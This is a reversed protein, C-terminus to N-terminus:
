AVRLVLNFHDKWTPLRSLTSYAQTRSQDEVGDLLQEVAKKWLYRDNVDVYVPIDGLIERYVSLDGCIVPTGLLTAEAPPMGFGEAFSPFVLATAGKLLTFLDPDSLTNLEIVAPNAQDLREFVQRNNWGRAGAIVLQPIQSAPREKALADWVDLLLAHNKRPEITGVTVFVPRAPDVDSPWIGGDMNPETVGLHAVFGDVSLGWELLHREVDQQTQASNYIVRDAHRGVRRLKAAFGHSVGPAQFAPFDLPITDHLMVTKQCDAFADFVRKSLNSHGVNLYSAGTPIHQSVTKALHRPRCRVLANRRVEAEARQRM